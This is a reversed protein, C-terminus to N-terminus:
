HKIKEKVTQMVLLKDKISGEICIGVGTKKILQLNNENLYEEVIQLDNRITKNSVNLTESIKDITIYSDEKLLVDVIKMVRNNM